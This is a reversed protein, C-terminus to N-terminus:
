DNFVTLLYWDHGYLYYLMNGWTIVRGRRLPSGDPLTVVVKDWAQLPESPDVPDYYLTDRDEGPGSFRALRDRYAIFPSSDLQDAPIPQKWGRSTWHDINWDPYSLYWFDNGDTHSWYVETIATSTHHRGVVHFQDDFVTMGTYGATYRGEDSYEDDDSDERWPMEDFYTAWITGDKGVVPCLLADGMNGHALVKGDDDIRWAADLLRGEDDWSSRACVGLWQHNPMPVVYDVDAPFASYPMYRSTHLSEVACIASHITNPDRWLVVLDGNHSASIGMPSAGAYPPTLTKVFTLPITPAGNDILREVSRQRERAIREERRRSANTSAMHSMIQTLADASFEIDGTEDM